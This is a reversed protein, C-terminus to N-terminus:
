NKPNNLIVLAGIVGPIWGCLTLLLIIFFSGCGKGLVSLPPFVIALLVRFFSM